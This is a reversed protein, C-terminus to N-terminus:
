HQIDNNGKKADKLKKPTVDQGKEDVVKVSHLQNKFSARFTKVYEARLEKQEEVEKATLGTTKARNALENIRAIKEKSLM